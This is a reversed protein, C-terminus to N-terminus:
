VTEAAILFELGLLLHRGVDYRIRELPVQKTGRSTMSLIEDRLFFLDGVLGGV